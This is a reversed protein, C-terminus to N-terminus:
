HNGSAIAVSKDRNNQSQIDWFTTQEVYETVAQMAKGGVNGVM